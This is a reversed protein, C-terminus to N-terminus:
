RGVPVPRLARAGGSASYQAWATLTVMMFFGGVVLVPWAAMIEALSFKWNLPRGIGLAAAYFWSVASVAGVFLALLRNSFTLRMLSGARKMAPLVVRELALGNLTLLLVVAFKAQLKPNFLVGSDAKWIDLGVIGVGTVWLAALALVLTHHLGALHDPEVAGGESRLLGRVLQLDSMFVTGLAVCCAILHLYVIGMRLLDFKM